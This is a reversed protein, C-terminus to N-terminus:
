PDGYEWRAYQRLDESRRSNGDRTEAVLASWMKAVKTQSLDRPLVAKLRGAFGDYSPLVGIDNTGM